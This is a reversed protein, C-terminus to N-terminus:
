EPLIFIGDSLESYTFDQNLALLILVPLNHIIQKFGGLVTDVSIRVIEEEITKCDYICNDFMSFCHVVSPMGTIDDNFIMKAFLQWHTINTDVGTEEKFERIMAYFRKENLEVKGGVGNLKGAQWEPRLKSILVIDKHDRSFAFGLVYEKM